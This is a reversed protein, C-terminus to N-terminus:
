RRNLTHLGFTVVDSASGSLSVRGWPTPPMPIAGWGPGAGSWVGVFPAAPVLAPGFPATGSSSAFDVRVAGWGAAHSPVEVALVLDARDLTFAPSTNQGSAIAVFVAM